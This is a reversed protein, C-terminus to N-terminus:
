FYTLSGTEIALIKLLKKLETASITLEFILNEFLYNLFNKEEFILSEKM